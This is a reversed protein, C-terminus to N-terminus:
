VFTPRILNHYTFKFLEYPTRLHLQAPMNVPKKTSDMTQSIIGKLCNLLRLSKHSNKRRQAVHAGLYMAIKTSFYSPCRVDPRKLLAPPIHNQFFKTLMDFFHHCNSHFRKRIILCFKLMTVLAINYQPRVGTSASLCVCLPFAPVRTSTIM